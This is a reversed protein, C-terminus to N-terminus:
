APHAAALLEQTYPHQPAEFVEHSPGREVVKGDKIVIMDHALARVVALDHSIFLYTLGHREQLQRLLAVVQKQVTRDLASTPEDLLILAPKLVLARAIAIRQRQGGSFEHPYRHRSAPDLGVEELVQIVQQECQQATSHSHVELGESIIQQVSMRPSLSGFPDQFVVQMQKRWPRLQKQNLGDLAEGQFRISGESDLLRLIAQGLTSKGSGSEGVIGLTKGRQLSLSIGDVARLYQKRRFLGGGIQFQVNLDDVQLVVEREDRPLAEGEPEANLLVCSYPHKPATFLTECPAQEVIQGAKMVCVRQAISRVLNLDHSILLLSMGLRQQLSKLLLLIKRQVTVDLATTPEDAILLEPECALAMAIMVRQRQGGSLQHPYAKLREEPKQIGVLQLLELIRAQAAKGGLGKHLLLTEGIQKEISHLPNLSTMPEQFIMAIRDGRLKQLTRADAGLLERGRYRISGSSQTDCDPLLQLISHATVSKGSGSEGVLALCEGPRIDLCLDRVVKQDGFAVNLNRIEILNDTM